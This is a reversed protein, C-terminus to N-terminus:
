WTHPKRFYRLAFEQMSYNHPDASLSSYTTFSTPESAESPEQKRPHTPRQSCLFNPVVGTGVVKGLPGIGVRM